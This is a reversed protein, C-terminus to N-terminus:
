WACIKVITSREEQINTDNDLRIMWSTTRKNQMQTDKWYQTNGCQFLKEVLAKTQELENTLICNLQSESCQFSFTFFFFTVIVSACFTCIHFHLFLAFKATLLIFELVLFTFRFPSLEIRNLELSIRIPACLQEFLIHFFFSCCLARYRIIPLTQLTQQYVNSRNFYSFAM